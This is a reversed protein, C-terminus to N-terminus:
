LGIQTVTLSFYFTIPYTMLIVESSTPVELSLQAGHYIIVYLHSALVPKTKWTSFSFGAQSGLKEM